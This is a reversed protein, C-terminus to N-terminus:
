VAETSTSSLGGDGGAYDDSRGGEIAGKGRDVALEFNLGVPALRRSRREGIVPTGISMVAERPRGDRWRGRSGQAGVVWTNVHDSMWCQGEEKLPEEAEAGNDAGNVDTDVEALILRVGVGDGRWWRSTGARCWRAGTM